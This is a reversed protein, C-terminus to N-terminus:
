KFSEHSDLRTSLVIMVKKGWKQKDQGAPQLFVRGIGKWYFFSCQVIRSINKQYYKFKHTDLITHVQMLEHLRLREEFSIGSIQAVAM